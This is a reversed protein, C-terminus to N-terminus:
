HQGCSTMRDLIQLHFWCLPSTLDNLLSFDESLRRPLARFQSTISQLQNALQTPSLPNSTPPTTQPAHDIHLFTHGLLQACHSQLLHCQLFLFLSLDHPTGDHRYSSRCLHTNAILELSVRDSPLYRDQPLDQLLLFETDLHISIVKERLLHCPLLLLFHTKLQSTPLRAVRHSLERALRSTGDQDCKQSTVVPLCILVSLVSCLDPLSSPAPNNPLLKFLLDLVILVHQWKSTLSLTREVLSSDMEVECGALDKVLLATLYLLVVHASLPYPEGTSSEATTDLGQSLKKCCVEMLDWLLAVSLGASPRLSADSVLVSHVRLLLDTDSLTLVTRLVREMHHHPIFCGRSTLEELMHVYQESRKGDRGEMAQARTELASWFFKTFPSGSDAQLSVAYLGPLLPDTSPLSLPKSKEKLEDTTWRPIAMAQQLCNEGVSVSTTPLPPPSAVRVEPPPSVPSTLLRIKTDINPHHQAASCTPSRQQLLTLTAPRLPPTADPDLPLYSELRGPRTPTVQSKAPSMDPLKLQKMKRPSSVPTTDRECGVSRRRREKERPPTQTQPRHLEQSQAPTMGPLRRRHMKQPSGVPTTDREQRGEGWGREEERQTQPKFPERGQVRKGRNLSLKLSRRQNPLSPPTKFAFSLPPTRDSALPLSSHHSSPRKSPSLPPTSLPLVENLSEQKIFSHGTSNSNIPLVKEREWKRRKEPTSHESEIKIHHGNTAASFYYSSSTKHIDLNFKKHRDLNSKTGNLVSTNSHPHHLHPHPHPHSNKHKKRRAESDQGPSDTRKRKRAPPVTYEVILKKRPAPLPVRSPAHGNHQCPPPTFKPPPPTTSRPPPPPTFRPPTPCRRSSSQTSCGQSPPPQGYSPRPVHSRSDAEHHDPSKKKHHNQLLHVSLTILLMGGQRGRGLNNACPATSVRYVFSDMPGHPRKHSVFADEQEPRSHSPHRRKEGRPSLRRKGSTSPSRGM